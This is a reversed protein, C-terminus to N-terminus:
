PMLLKIGRENMAWELASVYGLSCAVGLFDKQNLIAARRQCCGQCASAQTVNVEKKPCGEGEMRAAARGHNCHLADQLEMVTRAWIIGAPPLIASAWLGLASLIQIFCMQCPVSLEMEILWTLHERCGMTSTTCQVASTILSTLLSRSIFWWM